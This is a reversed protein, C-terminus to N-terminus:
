FLSLHCLYKIGGTHLINLGNKLWEKSKKYIYTWNRREVKWVDNLETVLCQKEGYVSQQMCYMNCEKKHTNGIFIFEVHQLFFGPGFTRWNINERFSYWFTLFNDKHIFISIHGFYPVLKLILKTFKLILIDTLIPMYTHGQLNTLDLHGCPSMTINVQFVIDM